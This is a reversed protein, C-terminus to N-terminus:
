LIFTIIAYIILGGSLIKLRNNKKTLIDNTSKLNQINEQYITEKKELINIEDRHLIDKKEYLVIISDQTSVKNQTVQLLQQTNDLEAKISDGKVLDIAILKAIDYSLIIKSTDKQSFTTLSLIITIGLLILKKVM